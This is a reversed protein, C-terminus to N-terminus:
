PSAGFFSMFAGSTDLLGIHNFISEPPTALFFPGVTPSEGIITINAADFTLTSPNYTITGDIQCTNNPTCTAPAINPTVTASVDFITDAASPVTALLLPLVAISIRM